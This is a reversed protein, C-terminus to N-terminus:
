GKGGEQAVAVDLAWSAICHAGCFVVTRLTASRDLYTLRPSLRLDTRRGCGACATTPRDRVSPLPPNLWSIAAGRVGLEGARRSQQSPQHLRVRCSRCLWVVDLVHEADYGRHHYGDLRRNGNGQVSKGCHECSDARVVDGRDVAAQLASSATRKREALADREADAAAIRERLLDNLTTM